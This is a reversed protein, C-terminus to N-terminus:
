RDTVGWQFKALNFQSRGLDRQVSSHEDIAIPAGQKNVHITEKAPIMIHGNQLIKKGDGAAQLRELSEQHKIAHDQDVHLTFGSLRGHDQESPRYLQIPSFIHGM